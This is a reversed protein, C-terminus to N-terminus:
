LFITTVPIVAEIRVVSEISTARIDVATINFFREVNM